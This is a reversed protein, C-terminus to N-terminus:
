TTLAVVLANGQNQPTGQTGQTGQTGELMRRGPFVTERLIPLPNRNDTGQTGQTGQSISLTKNRSLKPM